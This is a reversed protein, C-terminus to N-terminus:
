ASQRLAWLSASGSTGTVVSSTAMWIYVLPVVPWGLAHLEHV